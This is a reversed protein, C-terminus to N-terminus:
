VEKQDKAPPATNPAQKAQKGTTSSPDSGGLARAPARPQTRELRRESDAEDGRRPMELAKRFWDEDDDTPSVVGSDIATSIATMMQQVNKRGPQSWEIIPLIDGESVMSQNFAMIREILQKNWVAVMADQIAKISISFFGTMESALSQTGVGESGLSLFDAFFRRLIVHQWDRIIERHNFARGGGGYPEIVVGPPLILYANEDARFAKLASELNDLETSTVGGEPLLAIPANGVDREAGIAEIVELNKKFYWPRYLSLLLAHGEPNRKRPRYAFHLLKNMPATRLKGNTPDRQNFHTVRGHADPDGWRELTDQGIPILDNLGIRGDKRKELVIESLSYGWLIFESMEDVHQNWNDVGFDSFLTDSIFEAMEKESDTSEARDEKDKSDNKRIGTSVKIDASIISMKVSDGLTGITADEMMEGYIAMRQKYSKLQPLKEERLTGSWISLGSGLRVSSPNAMKDIQEVM